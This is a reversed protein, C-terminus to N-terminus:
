SSALERVRCRDDAIATDGLLPIPPDVQVILGLDMRGEKRAVPRGEVTLEADVMCDGGRLAVLEGGRVVAVVGRIDFVVRLEIDITAVKAGDVFLDIHPRYSWVVRHSALSVVDESGPVALTREAARTLDSHKRWGSLFATGLDVGLLADAVTAVERDVARLATGGLRPLSSLASRIVEREGLRTALLESTDVGRAEQFLFTRAALRRRATEVMTM